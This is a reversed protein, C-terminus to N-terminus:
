RLARGAGWGAFGAALCLCFTLVINLFAWKYDRQQFQEVVVHNFSSYTTLGGMIGVSLFQRTDASLRDAAALEAILTILFSGIINVTLTAIPAHHTEIWRECLKLVGFRAGTGLAGGLMVWALQGAFNM